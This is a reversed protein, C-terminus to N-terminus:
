FAQAALRAEAEKQRRRREAAGRREIGAIKARLAFRGAPDQVQELAALLASRGGRTAATEAHRITDRRLAPGLETWHDYAFRLRPATLGTDLPAVAYSRTLATRARASLSGDLEADIIALRLWGAGSAPSASLEQLTAARAALLEGRDRDPWAAELLRNSRAGSALSMPPAGVASWDSTPATLQYAASAAALLVLLAGAGVALTGAAGSSRRRGSM